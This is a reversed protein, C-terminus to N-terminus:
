GGTAEERLAMSAEGLAMQALWMLLTVTSEAGPDGREIADALRRLHVVPEEHIVRTYRMLEEFAPVSMCRVRDILVAKQQDYISVVRLAERDEQSMEDPM